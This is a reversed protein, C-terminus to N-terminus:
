LLRRPTREALCSSMERLSTESARLFLRTSLSFFLGFLTSLTLSYSAFCGFTSTFHSELFM